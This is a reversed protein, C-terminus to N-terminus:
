PAVALSGLRPVVTLKDYIINEITGHCVSFEKALEPITKGAIRKERVDMRQAETLKLRALHTAVLNCRKSCYRGSVWKSMKTVFLFENGCTECTRVERCAVYRGNAACERSCYKGSNSHRRASCPRV